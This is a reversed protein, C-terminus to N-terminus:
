TQNPARVIRVDNSSGLRGAARVAEASAGAAIAARGAASATVLHGVARRLGVFAACAVAAEPSTDDIGLETLADILAGAGLVGAADFAGGPSAAAVIAIYARRGLREQEALIWSAAAHADVLGSAVVACDAPLADLFESPVELADVEPTDLGTTDLSGIEPGLADVWVAIDAGGAIRGAATAGHDFRVQYKAQSFTGNAHTPSDEDM